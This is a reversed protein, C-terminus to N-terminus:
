KDDKPPRRTPNPPPKKTKEPPPEPTDSPHPRQTPPKPTYTPTPRGQEPNPTRTFTPPPITRTPTVIATSTPTATLPVKTATATASRTSSPVLTPTPSQGGGQPMATSTASPEDERVSTATATQLLASSAQELAARAAIEGGATIGIARLIEPSVESPVEALLFSLFSHQSALTEELSIALEKAKEPDRRALISLLQSAQTVHAEYNSVTERIYNYRGELVLEQIEILRAQAFQNHLQIKAVRDLTVLLEAKEFGIKVPYLAEGPLAEQSALAVGSGGVVLCALIVVALAVQLAVRWGSGLGTILQTWTRELWSSAVVPEAAIKELLRARSARVFGPRPEIAIKQNGFWVAAELLPKLEESVQPYRALVEALGEGSELAELCNGLIEDFEKLEAM